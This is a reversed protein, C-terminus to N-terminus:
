AVKQQWHRLTGIREMLELMREARADKKQSQADRWAQTGRGTRGKARGHIGYEKRVYVVTALKVGLGRAIEESTAKGALGRVQHIFQDPVKRNKRRDVGLVIGFQYRARHAAARTCGLELAIADDHMIPALKALRERAEPTWKFNCRSKGSGQM